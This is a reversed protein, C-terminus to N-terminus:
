VRWEDAWRHKRYARIIKSRLIIIPEWPREQGLRRSVEYSKIKIVDNYRDRILNHV